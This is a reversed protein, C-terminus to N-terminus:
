AALGKRRANEVAYLTRHETTHGPRRACREKAYRMWEGCTPRDSRCAHVRGTHHSTPAPDRWARRYWQVADFCVM